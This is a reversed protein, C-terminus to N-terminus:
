AYDRINEAPRGKDYIEMYAMIAFATHVLVEHIKPMAQSLFIAACESGPDVPNEALTVDVQRSLLNTRRDDIARQIQGDPEIRM